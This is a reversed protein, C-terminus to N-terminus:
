VTSVMGDDRIQKKRGGRRRPADGEEEAEDPPRRGNQQPEPSTNALNRPMGAAQRTPTSM